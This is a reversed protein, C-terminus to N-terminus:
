RLISTIIHISDWEGSSFFTMPYKKKFIIAQIEKESHGQRHLSLVKEELEKLYELKNMLAQRGDKVYGAHCCYLEGLEYTWVHELSRIIAPFAGRRYCIIM